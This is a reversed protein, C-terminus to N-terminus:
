DTWASLLTPPRKLLALGDPAANAGYDEVYIRTLNRIARLPARMDHSLSHAFTELDGITQRLALTREQVRMELEDRAMALQELADQLNKEALQRKTIDRLTGTFFPHGNLRIASITLEVPFELGDRRLASMEICKGLVPGEGTALYRALGRRHAERFQSPIILEAMDKGVMEERKYGFIKEAAANVEVIRGQEDMSVICDLASELIAAKRAESEQLAKEARHRESVDRLIVTFLKEGAVDVQSISAEIPFEEGNARLGSITGLAGMRRLSVGSKGFNEIHHTHAARFRHPILREISQGLVDQGSIGFMREAAPNFLVIRQEADISIIADMASFIIGNLRANAKASEDNGGRRAARRGKFTQPQKM